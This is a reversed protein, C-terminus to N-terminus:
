LQMQEWVNPSEGDGWQAAMAQAIGPFTKSKTLSDRFTEGKNERPKGNKKKSGGSVWSIMPEVENTPILPPLGRLWLCTRKSYPHGFQYPQIIQTADPLCFISSPVPNEVAVKDCNANLMKMFFDKGQIGRKLREMNVMQYEGDSVDKFLRCAGANTLYTCPPFAIIMDWKDVRKLAGGETEFTCSGNLVRLVNDQIHWEPHSGSCGQIDCSYAEHGRERFAKCVEQSEECAVLVRM